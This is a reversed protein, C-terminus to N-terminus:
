SLPVNGGRGENSEFAKGNDDTTGERELSGELPDASGRLRGEDRLGSDGVM